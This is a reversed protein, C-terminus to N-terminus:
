SSTLLFSRLALPKTSVRAGFKSGNFNALRETKQPARMERLLQALM